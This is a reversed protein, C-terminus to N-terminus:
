CRPCRRALSTFSSMFEELGGFIFVEREAMVFIGEKLVKM